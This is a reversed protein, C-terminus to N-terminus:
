DQVYMTQLSDRKKIELNELSISDASQILCYQIGKM